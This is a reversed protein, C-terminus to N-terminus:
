HGTDRAASQLAKVPGSSTMPGRKIYQLQQEVMRAFGYLLSDYYAAFRHNGFAEANFKLLYSISEVTSLCGRKPQKRIRYSSELSTAFSLCPLSKLLPNRFLIKAAEDWTGDLVVVTSSSDLCITSCDIAGPRPYLLYTQPKNVLAALEPEPFSVGRVLRSNKIARAVLKATSYYKWRENPHQLLLLNTHAEFPEVLNCVCHTQPRFCSFCTPRPERGGEGIPPLPRRRIRKPGPM